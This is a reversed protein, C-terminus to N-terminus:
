GIYSFKGGVDTMDLPGLVDYSICQGSRGSLHGGNCGECNRANRHHVKGGYSSPLIWRIQQLGGAEIQLPDVVIANEKPTVNSVSTEPRQNWQIESSPDEFREMAQIM